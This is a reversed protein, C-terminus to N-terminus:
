CWPAPQQRRGSGGDHAPQAWGNRARGLGHAPNSTWHRAGQAEGRLGHVLHDAGAQAQQGGQWAGARQVM